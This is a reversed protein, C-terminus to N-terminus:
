SWAAPRAAGSQGSGYPELRQWPHTKAAQSPRVDPCANQYAASGASKLRASPRGGEVASVRRSPPLASRGVPQMTKIDFARIEVV